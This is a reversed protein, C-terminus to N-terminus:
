QLNYAIKAGDVFQGMFGWGNAVGAVGIVLKNKGKKTPLFITNARMRKDIDGRYLPGKLLFSNNGSFVKRGNMYVFCLNSYEFSFPKDTANTETWEYQLWVIDSSNNRARGAIKKKTYKNINLYGDPDTIAKKWLLGKSLSIDSDGLETNFAMPQSVLWEHIAKDNRIIKKAIVPLKDNEGAPRIQLNSFWADALSWFGVCGKKNGTRLSDILLVPTNSHNIFVGAQDNEVVIKMHVWENKPYVVNTQYEQYFQWSFEANFVAGYQLADPLGSKPIRIYVDEYNLNSDIRFALGGMVPTLIDVEIVGNSFVSGPMYVLGGKCYLAERGLREQIAIPQYTTKWQTIDLQADVVIHHLLFVLLLIKRKTNFM